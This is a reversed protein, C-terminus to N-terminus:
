VSDFLDSLLLLPFCSFCNLGQVETLGYLAWAVIVINNKTNRKKALKYFLITLVILWIIGQNVFMYSYICDFTFANLQWVEDWQIGTYLPSLDQGFMTLGYQQFAYAGLLVRANLIRNLLMIIDNKTPFLIIMTWMCMALLPIITKSTLEIIKDLKIWFKRLVLLTIIFIMIFCSTRTKCFSYVVSTIFTLFVIQVIKINDWRLWIWMIFLNFVLAAWSNPHQMGFDYRVIGGIIQTISEKYTFNLYIAGITHCLFFITEFNFIFRIYKNIDIDKIALCTVVTILIANNGTILANYLTFGTVIAYIILTKMSYRQNLIHIAFIIIGIVSLIQDCLFTYNIIRSTSFLVKLLFIVTALYALFTGRNIKYSM